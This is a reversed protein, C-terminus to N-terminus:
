WDGPAAPPMGRCPGGPLEEMRWRRWRLVKRYHGIGYITPNFRAHAKQSSINNMGVSNRSTTFGRQRLYCFREFYGYPMLGRGRYKPITYTAGTCAEGEDFRVPFPMSDVCEKGAADVAVWGVHALEGDVYVCFAVAGKDLSRRSFVFADRVDELGEAAVCDAEVNSHLIRLEWSTVRPLFDERDWQALSHQYLYATRSYAIRRALFAAFAV